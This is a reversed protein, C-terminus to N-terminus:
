EVEGSADMRFFDGNGRLKLIGRLLPPFALLGTKLDLPQPRELRYERGHWRLECTQAALINRYWDVEPGYTLAFVFGGAVPEVIVPTSFSKGSRRGVHREVAFPSHAAGAIRMTLPNFRQKLFRRWPSLGQRAAAM